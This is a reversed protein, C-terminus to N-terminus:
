RWNLHSPHLPVLYHLSISLTCFATQNLNKTEEVELSCLTSVISSSYAPNLHASWWWTPHSPYLSTHLQSPHSPTCLTCICDLSHKSKTGVVELYLFKLHTQNCCTSNLHGWWRWTAGSDWRYKIFRLQGLNKATNLVNSLPMKYSETELKKKVYFHGFCNGFNMMLLM